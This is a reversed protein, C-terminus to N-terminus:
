RCNYNLQQVFQRPVPTSYSLSNVKSLTWSAVDDMMHNAVEHGARM